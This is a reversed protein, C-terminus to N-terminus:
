IVMSGVEWVAQELKIDFKMLRGFGVRTKL